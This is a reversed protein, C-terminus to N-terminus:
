YLQVHTFVIGESVRGSGAAQARKTSIDDLLLIKLFIGNFSFFVILDISDSYCLTQWVQTKLEGLFARFLNESNNIM